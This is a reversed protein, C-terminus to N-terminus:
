SSFKVNMITQEDDEDIQYAVHGHKFIVLKQGGPCGLAVFEWGKPMVLAVSLFGKLYTKYRKNTLVCVFNPIFDSFNVIYNSNFSIQGISGEGPGWPAPGFFNRM